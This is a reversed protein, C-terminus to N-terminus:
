LMPELVEVVKERCKKGSVIALVRKKVKFHEALVEIVAKNAKGDVAPSTVYVKLRDSEEVVKNKSARPFVKVNIRRAM